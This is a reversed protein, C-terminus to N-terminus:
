DCAVRQIWGKDDVHVNVRFPSFDQTVAQGPSIVRVPRDEPLTVDGINQGVLAQNDDPSCFPPRETTKAPACATLAALAVLPLATRTIRFM